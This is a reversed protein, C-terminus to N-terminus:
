LGPGRLGRLKRFVGAGALLLGFVYGLSGVSLGGGGVVATAGDAQLKLHIDVGGGASQVLTPLLHERLVLAFLLGNLVGLVAGFARSSRSVTQERLIAKCLLAVAILTTLYIAFYYPGPQAGAEAPGAGVARRLVTLAKEGLRLLAGAIAPEGLAVTVALCAGVILITRAGGQLAGIVAFTAVIVLSLTRYDFVFEQGM